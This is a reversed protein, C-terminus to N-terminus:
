IVGRPGRGGVAVVQRAGAREGEDPDHAQAVGALGLDFDGHPGDVVGARTVLLHGQADAGVRGELHVGVLKLAGAVM